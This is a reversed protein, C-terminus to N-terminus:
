SRYRIYNEEQLCYVTFLVIVSTQLGFATNKGAIFLIDLSLPTDHRHRLSLPSTMFGHYPIVDSQTRRRISQHIILNIM